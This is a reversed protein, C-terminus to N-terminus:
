DEEPAPTTTMRDADDAEDARRYAALLDEKRHLQETLSRVQAELGNVKTRLDHLEPLHDCPPSPWLAARLNGGTSFATM